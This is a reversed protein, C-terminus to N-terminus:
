KEKRPTEQEEQGKMCVRFHIKELEEIDLTAMMEVTESMLRSRDEIAGLETMVLNQEAEQLWFIKFDTDSFSDTINLETKEGEFIIVFSGHPVTNITKKYPLYKGAHKEWCVAKTTDGMKYCFGYHFQRFQDLYCILVNSEVESSKALRVGHGLKRLDQSIGHFIM